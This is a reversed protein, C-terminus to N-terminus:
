PCTAFASSDLIPQFPTGLPNDYEKSTGKLTDTVVIRVKVDTLGGAYVWYRNNFGCANLVKIVMEVNSDAFFWFYGTDSTLAVAQGVGTKGDATQWEVDVRFRNANLLLATSDPASGALLEEEPALLGESVDAGSAATSCTSFADTDLLPKFPTGQTNKYTKVTGTSMDTVTTTVEVDTLGGAYVWFRQNFTCADLVKLVMEVNSAGFFWFYGTDGTVPVAQGVGSSGNPIKWATEVKFRGNSLCLATPGPVCGPIATVGPNTITLEPIGSARFTVASNYDVAPVSGEPSVRLEDGLYSKGDILFLTDFPFWTGECPLPWCHVWKWPWRFSLAAPGSHQHLDAVVEGQRLLQVHQTLSSSGAFEATTEFGAATKTTRLRGLALGPKGDISGTTSAELFAGAPASASPDIPDFSFSAPGSRGLDVAVGENGTSGINGVTLKDSAPTLIANGMVSFPVHNLLVQEKAVNFSPIGQGRIEVRELTDFRVSLNEPTMKVFDTLITPGGSITISAGGNFSVGGSLGDKASFDIHVDTHKVVYKIIKKWPIDAKSDQETPRFGQRHFVLNGNLYADITVTTDEGLGAQFEKQDGGINVARIMMGVQSPVGPGSGVFSFEQASGTDLLDVPAFYGDWGGSKGVDIAVGDDGSLGINSVVLNGAADASLRAKGLAQHPVGASSTGIRSLNDISIGGQAGGPGRLSFSTIPASNDIFGVFGSLPPKLICTQGNVLLIWDESAHYDFGVANGNNSLSFKVGSAFDRFHLERSGLLSGGSLVQITVPTPSLSTLLLGGSPAFPTPYIGDAASEFGETVKGTAAAEWAARNTFVTVTAFAPRSTAALAILLGAVLYPAFRKDRM